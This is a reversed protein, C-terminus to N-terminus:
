QVVINIPASWAAQVGKTSVAVRFYYRIGASLGNVLGKVNNSTIVTQWTTATNPDTTMQYIYTSSRSVAKSNVQVQGTVKTQIVTFVKPKRNAAKKVTMGASQIINEAQDPTTNAVSEVYAALAKLAIELTKLEAHMKSVSGKVRTQSVTYDAEVVALQTSISALSPTPTPFNTNGTMKQLYLKTN